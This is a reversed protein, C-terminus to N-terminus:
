CPWADTFLYAVSGLSFGVLIIRTFLCLILVAEGHSISLGYIM